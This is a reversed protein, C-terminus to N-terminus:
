SGAAFVAACLYICRCVHVWPQGNVLNMALTAIAYICCTNLIRVVYSGFWNEANALIVILILVAACTLIIDRRSMGKSPHLIQKNQMM